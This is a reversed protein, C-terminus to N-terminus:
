FTKEIDIFYRMKEKGTGGIRNYFNIARENFIPTQWQINVCDNQRAIEKLKDFVIEGIKHGRLEPELYLCDLYLFIQADWTSYDFTYSFYGQLQDNSEIVFCFLKPSDSFLAKKLLNEKGKADYNVQEYQSHKGCLEVLEPLDNENCDRIIYEM